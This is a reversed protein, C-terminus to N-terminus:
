RSAILVLKEMESPVSSDIQYGRRRYWEILAHLSIENDLPRPSLRVASFGERLTSHEVEALVATGFGQRRLRKRVFLEYLVIRDLEPWRDLAVFAVERGGCLARYCTTKSSKTIEQDRQQLERTECCNAEKIEILFIKM